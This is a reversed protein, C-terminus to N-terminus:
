LIREFIVQLIQNDYVHVCHGGSLEIRCLVDPVGLTPKACVPILRQKARAKLAVAKRVRYSFRDYDLGHERCYASCPKSSLNFAKLHEDWYADNKQATSQNIAEDSTVDSM